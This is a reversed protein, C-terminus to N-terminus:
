EVPMKSSADATMPLGLRYWRMGEPGSSYLVQRVKGIVDRLPVPGFVRSDESKSPNNGYVYVMGHPVTFDKEGDKLISGPLGAVKKCYVMSRDDPYVFVIIDGRQPPIRRYATKDVVVRDGKLLEPWMSESAIKYVQVFNNKTYNYATGMLLISGLMWLATYAYWKTILKEPGGARLQYRYADRIAYIYTVLMTALSLSIGALLYKDPLYVTLGFGALMTLVFIIFLSAAKLLEGNYAQGLGPMAIGLFAAPWNRAAPINEKVM